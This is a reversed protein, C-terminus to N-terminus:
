VLHDPRSACSVDAFAADFSEAAFAMAYAIERRPSGYNDFHVPAARLDRLARPMEGACTPDVSTVVRELLNVMRDKHVQTLGRPRESADLIDQLLDSFAKEESAFVAAVAPIGAGATAHPSIINM